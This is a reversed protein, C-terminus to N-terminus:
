FKMITTMPSIMASTSVAKPVTSDKGGRYRYKGSSDTRERNQQPERPGPAGDNREEEPKPKDTYEGRRLAEPDLDEVKKTGDPTMIYDKGTELWYLNDWEENGRYVGRGNYHIDFWSYKSVSRDLYIRKGVPVEVVLLVQQNRFKDGQSVAFGRPLMLVSDKQTVDFNIKQALGMADNQTNGRSFKVRVVHFNSDESKAVQVRVSNLRITDM